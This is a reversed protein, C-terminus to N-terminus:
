VSAFVSFIVFILRELSIGGHGSFLRLQLRRVFHLFNAAKVNGLIIGGKTFNLNTLFLGLNNKFYLLYPNIEIFYEESNFNLGVM